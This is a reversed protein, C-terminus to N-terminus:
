MCHIYHGLSSDQLTNTNIPILTCTLPGCDNESDTIVVGILVDGSVFVGIKVKINFYKLSKKRQWLVM